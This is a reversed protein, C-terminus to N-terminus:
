VTRRCRCFSLLCMQLLVAIVLAPAGDLDIPIGAARSRSSLRKVAIINVMKMQKKNHKRGNVMSLMQSSLCWNGQSLVIADTKAHAEDTM